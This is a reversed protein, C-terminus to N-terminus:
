DMQARQSNQLDKGNNKMIYGMIRRDKLTTLNLRRLMEEYELEDFAYPIINEM